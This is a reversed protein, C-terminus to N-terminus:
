TRLQSSTNPPDIVQPGCNHIKPPVPINILDYQISVVSKLVHIASPHIELQQMPMGQFPLQYM